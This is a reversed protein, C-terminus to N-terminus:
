KKKTARKAVVELPNDVLLQAAGGSQEGELLVYGVQRADTRVTKRATRAATDNGNVVDFAAIEWRVDLPLSDQAAFQGSEISQDIQEAPRLRNVVM